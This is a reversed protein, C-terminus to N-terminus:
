ARGLRRIGVYQLIAFTAVIEAVIAIAWMGGVTTTAPWGFLLITASAIVWLLDMEIVIWVLTRNLPKQRAVQAVFFAFPLLGIGVILLPWQISWGM